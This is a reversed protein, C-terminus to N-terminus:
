ARPPHLSPRPAADAWAAVPSSPWSGNAAAPLSIFPLSPNLLTLTASGVCAGAVLDAVAPDASSDLTHVSGDSVDHWHRQVGQHEHRQGLAHARAHAHIRADQVRQVVRQVLRVAPQLWDSQAPVAVAPASHWHAPGLLRLSTGSAGYVPLALILLWLLLARM